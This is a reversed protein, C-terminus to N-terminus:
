RLSKEGPTRQLEPMFSRHPLRPRDFEARLRTLFYLLQPTKLQGEIDLGTFEVTKVETGGEQRVTEAGGSLASSASPTSAAGEPQPVSAEGKQAKDAPKDAPKDTPKAEAQKPEAERARKGRKARKARKDKAGARTSASSSAGGSDQARVSAADLGFFLAALAFCM